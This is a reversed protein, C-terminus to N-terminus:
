QKESTEKEKNPMQDGEAPVTIENNCNPCKGTKGTLKSGAELSAQCEPCKFKVTTEAM